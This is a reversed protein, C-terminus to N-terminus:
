APREYLVFDQTHGRAEDAPLLRVLRLAPAFRTRLYAEPHFAACLNRGAYRQFQVVPEGADFRAREDPTLVDSRSVGKTTVLLLGGPRVLRTLEDSWARELEHTLHTFVSIAYVLDFGADPLSVPPAPPNASVSAFPLAARCWDVLAPNVDSGHLRRIGDGRWHRLVRGCGCGFDLMGELSGPERGHERLLTRILEAHVRGSEYFAGVDFSGAVLYVLGPPPLPLGDPAGHALLRENRRRAAGDLRYRLRARADDAAAFLGLGDLARAAAARARRPRSLPRNARRM